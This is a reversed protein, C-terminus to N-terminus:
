ECSLGGHWLILQHLIGATCLGANSHVEEDTPPDSGGEAEGPFLVQRRSPPQVWPGSGTLAWQQGESSRPPPAANPVMLVKAGERERGAKPLHEKNKHSSECRLSPNRMCRESAVNGTECTFDARLLSLIPGGAEVRCALGLSPHQLITITTRVRTYLYNQEDAM